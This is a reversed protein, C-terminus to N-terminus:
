FRPPKRPCIPEQPAEFLEGPNVCLADAIRLLSSLKVDLQGKEIRNITPRSLGSMLSLTEKTLEQETRLRMVNTGLTSKLYDMTRM